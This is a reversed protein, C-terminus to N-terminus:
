RKLGYRPGILPLDNPTLLGPSAQVVAEISNVVRAATMAMADDLGKGTGGPLGFPFDGRIPPFGDVEIRYGGYDGISPWGPAAHRGLRNVHNTQIRPQGHVIGTLSWRLAGVTGRDVFLGSEVTYPEPSVWVDADFRIDDLEVGCADALVWLSGSWSSEVSDQGGALEEPKRGFGIAEITEAVMYTSYDIMEWSRIQTIEGVMSGVTAGLVCDSFGPDIGTFFASSRGRRCASTVEGLFADGNRLHRWHIPSGTSSVVNAGSALIALLEEVWARDPVGAVTHDALTARPTFIVCDAGLGLLADLDRTAAVGAPPGGYLEGVDRGDKDASYCRVGVLELDDRGLVYRLAHEGVGGPGWLIIRRKPM